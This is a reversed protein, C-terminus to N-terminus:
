RPHPGSPGPRYSGHMPLPPFSSKLTARKQVVLSAAHVWRRNFTIHDLYKRNCRIKVRLQHRFFLILDSHSFNACDYLGKKWMTWIVMRATALIALFVVCKEGQFQPLIHDAIYDVNFLVLQKAEIRAMLNWFPHVRECNYFAHEAMEELGSGCHPCNPMNALSAKYNLGFLPLTNWALQWTLSFESNNLFGLGPVWNWHSYVEKMSWGLRDMLPDSASGVVLEWYLEKQSWSLENSGPLNHFAKCCEQVFLTKGRLKHWGEAKPDSMLRPFTNSAKPKWVLDMSFSQGLYALREAFWHNELDPIGLVRNRLHQCCVQRRIIPRWGRWLLKSLSWQLM